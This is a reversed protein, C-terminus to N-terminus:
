GCSVIGGSKCLVAIFLGREPLVSCIKGLHLATRQYKPYIRIFLGDFPVGKSLGNDIPNYVCLDVMDLRKRCNKLFKYSHSAKIGM